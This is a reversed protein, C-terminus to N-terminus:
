LIGLALFSPSDPKPPVNKESALAKTPSTLLTAKSVTPNNALLDKPKSLYSQYYLAIVQFNTKKIVM